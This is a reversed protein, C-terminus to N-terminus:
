PEEHHPAFTLIADAVSLFIKGKGILEVFESAHIKDM